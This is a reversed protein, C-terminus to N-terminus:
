EEFSLNGPYKSYTKSIDFETTPIDLGVEEFNTNDLWVQGKGDLLIGINIVGSNESIDMVCSYYNWEKTGTIPRDQMNDLKLTDGLSSDIRLWLGSWGEVKKAKVFGSFRVRKGIFSGASFQQMIVAYEDPEFDDTNSVITASKTGTNCIKRDIYIDYKEPATGTMIWNKIKSKENM